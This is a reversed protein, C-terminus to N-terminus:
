RISLSLQKAAQNRILILKLHGKWKEGQYADYLTQINKIDMEGCKVIVDGKKLGSKKAAGEEELDMILVGNEDNLGAASREGLGEINKITMGLLDFTKQKKVQFDQRVLTPIPPQEALAKLSPTVVGFKDMPFNKFGLKLVPSAANLQYNGEEPAIFMPNGFLANKDQNGMAAQSTVLSVSDPFFNHDIEAGFGDLRIAKYSTM